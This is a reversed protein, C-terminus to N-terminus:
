RTRITDRSRERPRASSGAVVTLAVALVGVVIQGVPQGRVLLTVTLALVLGVGVPVQDPIRAAARARAPCAERGRLRSAARVSLACLCVALVAAVVADPWGWAPETGTPGIPPM